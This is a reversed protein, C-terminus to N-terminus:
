QKATLTPHVKLLQTLPCKAPADVDKELNYTEMELM